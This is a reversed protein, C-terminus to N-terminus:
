KRPFWDKDFNCGSRTLEANAVARYLFFIHFLAMCVRSLGARASELSPRTLAESCCLEGDLGARVRAVRRSTQFFAATLRGGSRGEFKIVPGADAMAKRDCGNLPVVLDPVLAIALHLRPLEIWIVQLVHRM